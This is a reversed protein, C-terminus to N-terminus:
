GRGAEWALICVPAIARSLERMAEAYVRIGQRKAWNLVTFADDALDGLHQDSLRDM